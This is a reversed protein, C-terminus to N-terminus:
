RAKDRGNDPNGMAARIFRGFDFRPNTEALAHGFECAINMRDDESLTEGHPKKMKAITAAIMVFHRHEMTPKCTM